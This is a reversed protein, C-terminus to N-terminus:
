GKEVEGYFKLTQFYVLSKVNPIKSQLKLQVMFKFYTMLLYSPFSNESMKFNTLSINRQQMPCKLSFDACNKFNEMLMKTLFNGRVGDELKCMNVTSRLIENEYDNDDKTKQLSFSFTGILRLLDVNIDSSYNFISEGESGRFLVLTTNIYKPNM